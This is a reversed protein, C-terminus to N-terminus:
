VHARGIQVFDKPFGGAHWGGEMAGRFEDWTVGLLGLGKNAGKTEM